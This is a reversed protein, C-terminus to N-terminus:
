KSGMLTVVAQNVATSMKSIFADTKITKFGSYQLNM